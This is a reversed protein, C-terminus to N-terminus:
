KKTYEESVLVDLPPIYFLRLNEELFALWQSWVSNEVTSYLLTSINIVRLWISQTPQSNTKSRTM